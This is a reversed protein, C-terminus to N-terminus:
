LGMAQRVESVLKDAAGGDIWRAIKVVRDNVILELRKMDKGNSKGSVSSRIDTVERRPFSQDELIKGRQYRRISIDTPNGEIRRDVGHGKIAAVLASLGILLFVSSVLTWIAAFGDSFLAPLYALLNEIGLDPNWEPWASQSIGFIGICMFLGGILSMVLGALWSGKKAGPISYSFVSKVAGGEHGGSRTGPTKRSAFVERRLESILWVQEAKDLGGGFKMKARDAKIEIGFVPQKNQRYFERREITRIESCNLARENSRGFMERRLALVGGSVVITHSLFKLKLAEYLMRLGITWFIGFFIIAMWWPMADRVENGSIMSTITIVSAFGTISCWFIGLLLVALFKGAPPIHWVSGGWGDGSKQITSNEPLSVVEGICDNEESRSAWESLSAKIGCAECELVRDWEVPFDATQEGCEPCSLAGELLRKRVAGKELMDMANEFMKWSVCSKGSFDIAQQIM